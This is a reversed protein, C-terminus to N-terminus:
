EGLGDECWRGMCGDRGHCSKRAEKVRRRRQSARCETEADGGWAKEDGEMVEHRKM